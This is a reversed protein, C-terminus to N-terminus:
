LALYNANGIQGAKEEAPEEVKPTSDVLAGDHLGLRAQIVGMQQPRCSIQGLNHVKALHASLGEPEIDPAIELEGTVVLTVKGELASLYSAQLTQSDDVLWLAGEYFVIRNKLPDCKRALVSKLAAPCLIMDGSAIADLHEDLARPPSM